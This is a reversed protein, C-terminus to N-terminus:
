LATNIICLCCGNSKLLLQTLGLTHDQQCYTVHYLRGARIAMHSCSELDIRKLHQLVCFTCSVSNQTIVTQRKVSCLTFITTSCHHRM